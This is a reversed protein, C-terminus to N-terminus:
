SHNGMITTYGLTRKNRRSTETVVKPNKERRSRRHGMNFNNMREVIKKYGPCDRFQLFDELNEMWFKACGDYSLTDAGKEIQKCVDGHVEAWHKHFQEDSISEKKRIFFTLKIYKQKEGPM